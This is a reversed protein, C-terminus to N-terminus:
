KNVLRKDQEIAKLSKLYLPKCEQLSVETESFSRCPRWISCDVQVSIAKSLSRKSPKAESRSKQNQEMEMEIGILKVDIVFSLEVMGVFSNKKYLLPM